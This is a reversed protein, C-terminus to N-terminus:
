SRAAERAPDGSHQFGPHSCRYNLSNPVMCSAERGRCGKGPLLHFFGEALTVQIGLHTSLTRTETGPWM